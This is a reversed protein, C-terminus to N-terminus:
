INQFYAQKNFDLFDKFFHEKINQFWARGNFAFSSTLCFQHQSKNSGSGDTFVLLFGFFVNKSIKSGSQDTITM